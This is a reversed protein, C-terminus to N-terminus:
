FAPGTEPGNPLKQVGFCLQERKNVQNMRQREEDCQIKLVNRDGKQPSGHKAVSSRVFEESPWSSVAAAIM